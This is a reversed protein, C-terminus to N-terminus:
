TRTFIDTATTQEFESSQDAAVALMAENGPWKNLRTSGHVVPLVPLLPLDERAVRWDMSSGWHPASASLAGM